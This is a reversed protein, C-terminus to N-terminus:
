SAFRPMEHMPSSRQRGPSWRRALRDPLTQKEEIADQGIAIDFMFFTGESAGFHRPAPGAQPKPGGAAPGAEPNEAAQQPKIPTSQENSM